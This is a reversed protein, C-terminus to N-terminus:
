LTFLLKRIFVLLISIAAPTIGPIKIAQDISIPKYENLKLIVERSLGKVKNYDFNLSLPLNRYRKLKEIEKKQRSIYGSYKIQIELELIVSQFEKNLQYSSNLFKSLIFYSIEPRSLLDIARISGKFPNKLFKNLYSINQHSDFIRIKQLREYEKKLFNKKKVFFDWREENILGLSYGIETLRFDANSERLLLRYESRSTFMRYPESAVGKNCLDDILVGLYAQNRNPIWPERNLVLLAANLGALLGQAAAEEYGTTGNIQGSFFLNKIKKSELTMKLDRPDFYDYEVAYGYQIVKAKELGVISHIIEMQIKEPFSTSIGNPYIIDSNIGEPELFIQHRSKNPFHVIKDEISPCYRPGIAKINGNYMPSLFLNSSIVRHTNENTYTLYCPIQKPHQTVKGLFSFVPVPSDGCQKELIKFNISNKLIRPPTGTKLRGVHFSYDKLQIALNSFLKENVRGGSFTKSGIYMKGGLFTGTCLVVSSGYLSFDEYTIVGLVQYNKIILKKIEAEYIFINKKKHLFLYIYKQYLARDIQVRTSRVAPGKSLNLTKFQIGSYDSVIAMLGGMADIEKVLQSKGIGGISPNCSLVGIDKICKTILLVSCDMRSAAYAAEIGAHGGGVVIVDFHKKYDNM